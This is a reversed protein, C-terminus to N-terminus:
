TVKFHHPLQHRQQRLHSPCTAPLASHYSFDLDLSHSCVRLVRPDLLAKWAFLSSCGVCLWLRGWPGGLELFLGAQPDPLNTYALCGQFGCLGGEPPKM